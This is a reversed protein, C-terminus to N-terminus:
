RFHLLEYNVCWCRAFLISFVFLFVDCRYSETLNINTKLVMREYKQQKEHQNQPCLPNMHAKHFRSKSKLANQKCFNYFQLVAWFIKSFMLIILKVTQIHTNEVTTFMVDYNYYTETHVHFQITVKPQAAAPAYHCTKLNRRDYVYNKKKKEIKLHVISIPLKM